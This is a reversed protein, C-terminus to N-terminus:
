PSLFSYDFCCRTSVFSLFYCINRDTHEVLIAVFLEVQMWYLILLVIKGIGVLVLSREDTDDAM